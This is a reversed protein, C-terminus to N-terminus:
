RAPTPSPSAPTQSPPTPAAPPAPPLGAPGGPGGAMGPGGPGFGLPPPGGPFPAQGPGMMGLGGGPGGGMPGGGMPGGRPPGGPGGPPGFGLQSAGPGFEAPPPPGFAFAWIFIASGATVFAGVLAGALGAGLVVGTSHTRKTKAPVVAAPTAPEAATAREPNTSHEDTSM